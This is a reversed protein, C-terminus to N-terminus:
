GGFLNVIKGGVTLAPSLWNGINQLAGPKTNTSGQVDKINIPTFTPKPMTAVNYALPNSLIGAGQDGLGGAVTKYQDSLVPGGSPDFPSVRPNAMFSSRYVDRLATKRQAAEENAMNLLENVFASQGTINQQNADLALKEQDLANQGAATTAAGVAQGAGSLLDGVKGSGMANGIKQLANPGTKAGATAAAGIDGMNTAAGAPLDAAGSGIATSALPTATGFEAGAAPLTASSLLSGTMAADVAGSPAVGALAPVFGTGITTSALPAAEGAATAAGGAGAAAGGGGFLGAMPGIGAAGLGTLAAAGIGAGILIKKGLGMGKDHINGSADIEFANQSIGIGRTRAEDMLIQRQQDNLKPHGPDQGWQRMLAQYWPQARMYQNAQDVEAETGIGRPLSVDTNTGGPGAAIINAISFAIRPDNPAFQGGGTQSAIEEDSPVYGFAQQYARVIAPYKDSLASM